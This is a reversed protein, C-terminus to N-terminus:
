FDPPHNKQTFFFVTAQRRNTATAATKQLNNELENVRTQLQTSIIENAEVLAFLQEILRVVAEPGANYNALIQERTLKQM